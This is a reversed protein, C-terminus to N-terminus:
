REKRVGEPLHAATDGAIATLVKDVEEDIEYEMDDLDLASYLVESVFQEIVGEQLLM